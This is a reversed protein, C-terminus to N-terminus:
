SPQGAPGSASGPPPGGVAPTRVLIPEAVRLQGHAPPQQMLGLPDAALQVEQQAQGAYDDDAEDRQALGPDVELHGQCGRPVRAEPGDGNVGDQEDAARIHGAHVLIVLISTLGARHESNRPGRKGRQEPSVGGGEQRGQTPGGQGPNTRGKGM